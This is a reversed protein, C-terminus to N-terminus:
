TEKDQENLRKKEKDAWRESPYTETRGDPLKRLEGTKRNCIGWEGGELPQTIFTGIFPKIKLIM